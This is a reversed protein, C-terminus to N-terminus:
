ASATAPRAARPWWLAARFGTEPDTRGLQLSGGHKAVISRAIALGLGCGGGQGSLGQVFRQGLRALEDAPVSPGNDLVTVSFGLPDAMVQVTVAGGEPTYRIANDALNAIAERLLGPDGRARLPAQEVVDIGFDISKARAQPLLSLAVERVLGALDFDTVVIAATDSRALALLQNANRIAQDIQTSIAALVENMAAPELGRMAYDVQTRLTALPTRLQHSADDLFLRQQAVLDQTRKMQQNVADVLPQIDSPLDQAQLPTLDSVKRRRVQAALTTVPRVALTVVLVGATLTLLLMAGDRVASQLVFKRTFESRSLTSEAVQIILHQAASGGLPRALPREQYGVRVTEGFYTADYFVTEGVKVPRQPVPLDSSGIDVLGDGTAVRFYVSGSATLQFFEFMRYPLEVSLGGSATTTNARISEIAGLVSRDYAANAADLADRHTMWLQLATVALLTPILLSLLAGRLSLRRL